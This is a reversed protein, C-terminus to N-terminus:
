IRRMQKIQSILQAVIMIADGKLVIFYKEYNYRSDQHISPRHKRESPACVCSKLCDSGLRPRVLDMASQAIHDKVVESAHMDPDLDTDMNFRDTLSRPWIIQEWTVDFSPSLVIRCLRLIVIRCYLSGM